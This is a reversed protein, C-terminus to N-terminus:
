VDAKRMIAAFIKMFETSEGVLKIKDDENNKLPSSLELWYCSEKAEKRCIKVRMLFDKRSLSENAEIYNAGVSGASRMLQKVIGKKSLMYGLDEANQRPLDGPFEQKRGDRIEEIQNKFEGVNIQTGEILGNETVFKGNYFGMTSYGSSTPFLCIIFHEGISYSPNWDTELFQLNPNVNGRRIIVEASCKGVIEDLVTLTIWAEGTPLNFIPKFEIDKVIVEIILPSEKVVVEPQQLLISTALLPFTIVGIFLNMILVNLKKM